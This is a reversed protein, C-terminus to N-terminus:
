LRGSFGVYLGATPKESTFNVALGTSIWVNDAVRNDTALAVRGIPANNQMRFGAFVRVDLDRGTDFVNRVKGISMSPAIVIGQKSDYVFEIRQAPPGSVEANDLAANANIGPPSAFVTTLCAFAICLVAFLKM